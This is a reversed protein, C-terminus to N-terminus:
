HCTGPKSFYVRSSRAYLHLCLCPIESSLILRTELALVLVDLAVCHFVTEFFGFWFSVSLVIPQSLRSLSHLTLLFPDLDLPVEHVSPMFVPCDALLQPFCHYASSWSGCDQCTHGLACSRVRHLWSRTRGQSHSISILDSINFSHIWNRLSKM